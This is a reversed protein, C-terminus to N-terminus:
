PSRPITTYLALAPVPYRRLQGRRRLPLYKDYLAKHERIFSRWINLGSIVDEFHAAMRMSIQKVEEKDFSNALHTEELMDYIRNAIHTYYLDTSDSQKYPHLQLWDKPYIKTNKM